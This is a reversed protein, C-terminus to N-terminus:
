RRVTIISAMIALGHMERGGLGGCDRLREPLVPLAASDTAGDASTVRAASETM